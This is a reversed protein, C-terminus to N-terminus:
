FLFRFHLFIISYVFFFRSTLIALLTVLTIFKENQGKMESMGIAFMAYFIWVSLLIAWFILSPVM